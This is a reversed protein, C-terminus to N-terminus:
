NGKKNKLVNIEEATSLLTEALNKSIVTKVVEGKRNVFVCVNNDPTISVTMGDVIVTVVKQNQNQNEM